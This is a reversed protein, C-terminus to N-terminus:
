SRRRSGRRGGGLDRRDLNAYVDFVPQVNYHNVIAPAVGREVDALNSLLQPGGSAAGPNGYASSTQSPAAGVSSNGANAAGALSNPTNTNVSTQLAGIPTRMISELSNLRQQPTQVTVNYSVGNSYDLWQTPAIQGSGSLSILLSNSVDRQTLGLRGPRAATWTSGSRRITSWRTSISTPRARSHARDAAQLEQAIQYNAAANRGLVQVDIPAPLGFNLIQNTINAAEFFFAM